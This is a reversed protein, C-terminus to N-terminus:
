GAFHLNHPRLARTLLEKDTRHPNWLMEGLLAVSPEIQLEFNADEILATVLANPNVALTERYFRADSPYGTMWEANTRAWEQQRGRWRERVHELDHEGMIFQGRKEYDEWRLAM